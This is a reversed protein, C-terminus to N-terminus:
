PKQPTSPGSSAISSPRSRKSSQPLPGLKFHTNCTSCIPSFTCFISLCVSCVYGMEILNRHCFCAAKMSIKKKVPLVLRKRMEVSPLFTWLLYELLAKVKDVKLYYGDTLDCGQQLISPAPATGQHFDTSLGSSITCVDIVVGMKQATFYANMFNMYQSAFSSVSDCNPSLIAIRPKCKAANPTNATAINIRNIITLGMCIAGALLPEPLTLGSGNARLSLQSSAITEKLKIFITGTIHSLLEYQGDSPPELDPVPPPYVTRNSSSTSVIITLGNNRNILLHSNCFTIVSDLWVKYLEEDRQLWLYPPSADIIAVLHSSESASDASM